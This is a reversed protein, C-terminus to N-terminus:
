NEKSICIPDTCTEVWGINNGHADYLDCHICSQECIEYPSDYRTIFHYCTTGASAATLGALGLLWSVILIKKWMQARKWM